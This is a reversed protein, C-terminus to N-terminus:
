KNAHSNKIQRKLSSKYNFIMDCFDCEFKKIKKDHKWRVHRKMSDKDSYSKECLQCKFRLDETIDTDHKHNIDEHCVKSAIHAFFREKENGFSALCLPCKFINNNSSFAAAREFDIKYFGHIRHEHKLLNDKRKYKKDCHECEFSETNDESHERNHREFSKIHTFVKSCLSCVLEPKTASKSASNKNLSKGHHSNCIHRLCGRRDHFVRFCLVCTRLLKEGKLKNQKKRIKQEEAKEKM